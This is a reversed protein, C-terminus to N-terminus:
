QNWEVRCSTRDRCGGGNNGALSHYASLQQIVTITLIITCNLLLFDSVSFTAKSVPLVRIKQRLHRIKSLEVNLRPQELFTSRTITTGGVTPRYAVLPQVSDAKVADGDLVQPQDQQQRLYARGQDRHCGGKDGGVELITQGMIWGFPGYKVRFDMDMIVMSRGNDTPEVSMASYAEHLPIPEM